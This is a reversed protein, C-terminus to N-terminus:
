VHARGIQQPRWLKAKIMMKRVTEKSLHIDHHEALYESALTPGFGRYHAGIAASVKSVMAEPVRRNSPRGRQASRLGAAGHSVFRAELRRVQRETVGLRRSAEKQSIRGGRRLAMVEVRELEKKTMGTEM